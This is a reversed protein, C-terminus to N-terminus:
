VPVSQTVSEPVWKSTKEQESALSKGDSASTRKDADGGNPGRRQPANM